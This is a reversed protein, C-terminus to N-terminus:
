YYFCLICISRSFLPVVMWVVKRVFCPSYPGVRARIEPMLGRINKCLLMLMFFEFFLVLLIELTLVKIQMMPGKKVEM